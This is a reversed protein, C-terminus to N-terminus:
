LGKFVDRLALKFGPLVDGGDLVEDTSVGHYQGNAQYVAVRKQDPYVIWVLRAGANLYEDIKLAIGGPTDYESVVEVVLDPATPVYDNLNHNGLREKSIFAVDPGRVNDPDRKTVYGSEVTAMGLDNDDVHTGIYRMLRGAVKGHIPKPRCVEVPVGDVLEYRKGDNPMRAFDEATLLKELISM